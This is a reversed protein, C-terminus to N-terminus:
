QAKQKEYEQIIANIEGCMEALVQDVAVKQFLAKEVGREIAAEIEVWRPHAPPSKSYALQQIFVSRVSDEIFYPNQAVEAHVPTACGTAICLNFIHKPQLLHRALNLAAVPEAAKRPVALYEGGAFGAQSGKNPGPFPMIFASFKLSIGARKIREYLWDGSFHYMLKGDMFMDDLASQKDVYQHQSMNVVFQLAERGAETELACVSMDETLVDGGAAWLFPLFRKYLRHPEAANVGFGWMKPKELTADKINQLLQSWVFPQPRASGYVLAAAEDNQYFVRTSLYWPLAYCNDQYIASPWGAMSERLRMCEDTMQLLAGRDAFEAIWDSGLEILDPVNDTAFAAVIKQYGNDWTLDTVEVKYLPNQAEFEEIAKTIVAKVRPETWFQWFRIIKRGDETVTEKRGCGISFALGCILLGSLLLRLTKM